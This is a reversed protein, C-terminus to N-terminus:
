RSSSQACSSGSRRCRIRPRSCFILRRGQQVVQQGFFADHRHVARGVMGIAVRDIRGHEKAQRCRCFWATPSGDARQNAVVFVAPGVAAREVKLPAAVGLGDVQAGLGLWLNVGRGLFEAGHDFVHDKVGLGLIQIELVVAQGGVHAAGIRQVVDGVGRVARKAAVGLVDDHQGAIRKAHQGGNRAQCRCLRHVVEERTEGGLHRAGLAAHGLGLGCEGGAETRGEHGAAGFYVAVQQAALDGLM